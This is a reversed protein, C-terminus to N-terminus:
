YPFQPLSASDVHLLVLFIVIHCDWVRVASSNMYKDRLNRNLIFVWTLVFYSM